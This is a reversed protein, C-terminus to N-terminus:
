CLGAEELFRSELGEEIASSLILRHRARTMGVYLLRREDEETSDTHPLTGDECGMIWVNDFELGKSAHLTMIQVPLVHGRSRPRGLVSLRQALSGPMKAIVTGLRILLDLQNPKCYDALFGVVGHVVLSPRGKRAQSIWGALGNRLGLLTKKLGANDRAEEIALELRPICGGKSRRSHENVWGAQLGCFSMANAVGTWSDDLVSRLLGLLVGGVSHEWVSKGGSRSYPIGADSLAVEAADLLSNTRGLVAWAQGDGSKKIAEAILDVEDWRSPARVVRIEGPDDRHATIKKAARDKNHVILKAAHALINPACRYNVPLTTETASLALTVARLGAYGLAHRFAYLSQDDDGVLTVEVGARGHFLVWEMQVEDMDQAEDVLLWRIPLPAMEGNAMKRVSVLLLDSFDMAGESEMLEQYAHFLAELSPESFVPPTLRAKAADIAQIVDDFELDPAHQQWCRRLVALREGESLLRLPKARNIRKLQGLAISHFTGVALRRAHDQGCSALIRSRLEDAADRTFTVACLRGKSHSALLRAARESLVRTKGSGPCALITCHGTAAVAREQYPNLEM